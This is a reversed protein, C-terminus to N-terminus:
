VCARALRLRGPGGPRDRPVHVLGPRDCGSQAHVLLGPRRRDLLGKTPGGVIEYQLNADSTEVDSVLAGVDIAVAPGNEQAQATGDQAQPVDNAPAVTTSVTGTDTGEHGDSLTYDFSAPGNYDAAPTYTVTGAVLSVTGHTSGTATVATVTLPTDGDPDSDNATLDSAPFSFPTDEVAGSKTDDVAVPPKNVPSGGVGKFAFVFTNPTGLTPGDPTSPQGLSYVEADVDHIATLAGTETGAAGYFIDFTLKAGPALTPFGFDFLAGHDLPGNDIADGEFAIPTRAGLPNATQFGNDNSYLLATANRGQITVYESFATPEIDWDMVRRYRPSVPASSTNQITVEADYLNPTISPHYDHTVRMVPDGTGNKIDVVSTATDDTSSFSVLSLNKVGDEFVDAYGTTGTTADAAGWGECLCGPATAEAKTPLYRLGVATVGGLSPAGGNLNLHGEPNIGLQIVHNDICAGPMSACPRTVTVDVHGVDTLEGDSVTYDFADSGVFGADPTYECTVSLCTVTGHTPDTHGVVLLGGSDVSDADTDNDTVPVSVTADRVTTATDDVAVPAHNATVTVAVTGTDTEVGDSVVYDFSDAGVYGNDPIYTCSFDDCFVTGHAASPNTSTITLPDNDPDTYNPHVSAQKNRRTTLTADEAHPPNNSTVLVHITGTASDTGDSITFQFSDAGLYDTAPTYTCSFLNCTATGHAASPTASTITIPDGDPDNWAPFDTIPTNKKTKWNGDVPVPPQNPNVTVHVTGTATEAGDSVVYQFSDTGIFGTNPTYMCSFVDCSVTGHAAAPAASTITVEDLDPDFFPPLATSPTNEKTTLGVDPAVPAQNVHVNVTVTGTATDTGDSVTYQFSDPGLYDTNPTYTCSLGACTVTGHDASPTASTITLPDGDEDFVDPTVTQPTNKKVGLNVDPAFPPTNTGPPDPDPAASSASAVIAIALAVLMVVLLPVRWSRM